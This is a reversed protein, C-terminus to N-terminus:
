STPSHRWGNGFDNYPERNTPYRGPSGQADGSLAVADFLNSGSRANPLSSRCSSKWLHTRSGFPSRQWPRRWPRM